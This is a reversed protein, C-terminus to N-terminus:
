KLREQLRGNMLRARVQEFEGLRYHYEARSFLSKTSETAVSRSESETTEAADPANDNDGTQTQVADEASDEGESAPPQGTDAPEPKVTKEAPATDPILKGGNEADGADGPIRLVTNEVM